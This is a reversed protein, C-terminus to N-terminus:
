LRTEVPPGSTEPAEADPVLQRLSLNMQLAFVWGMVLTLIYQLIHFTFGVGLATEKGVGYPALALIIMFEFVGLGGPSSPIMLGFNLVVMLFLAASFPLRLGFALMCAYAVGTWSLWTLLCWGMAAGLQPLTEILRIGQLLKEGQRHLWPGLNGPLRGLPGELWRILRDGYRYNLALLGVLTIGIAAVTLGSWKLWPAFAIFLMTVGFYCLLSFLDIIREVVVTGIALSMPLREYKGLLWARLVEGLKLPLLNNALYGLTIIRFLNWLRPHLRSGIIERWLLSRLFFSSVVLLGALCTWGPHVRRLVQLLL